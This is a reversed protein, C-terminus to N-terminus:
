LLKMPPKQVYKIIAQQKLSFIQQRTLCCGTLDQDFLEADIILVLKKVRSRNDSIFKRQTLSAFDIM